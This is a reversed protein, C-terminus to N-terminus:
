QTCNKPMREIKIISIPITELLNSGFDGKRQSLSRGVFQKEMLSLCFPTMLGTLSLSIM